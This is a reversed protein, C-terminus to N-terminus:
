RPLLARTAPAPETGLEALASKCNRYAKIAADEDGITTALKILTRWASERFPNTEVVERCLTRSLSYQGSSLALNAVEIQAEERVEELEDRRANVWASCLGPMFDGKATVALAQQTATLRDAGCMRSAEAIAALLRTSESEIRVGPAVRIVDGDTILTGEPLVSRLQHVLQRLQLRAAASDRDPLLAAIVEERRTFPHRRSAIFGLLEVSRRLRPHVREGHVIIAAEGFEEVVISGDGAPVRVGQMMLARGIQQWPTDLTAEASQRRSAVAPFDALAKLLLHNSGQRTASALALDAARDAADEDGTRWEAEALYVAAAPEQLHGDSSEMIAVTRKLRRRAAEDEEAILEALGRWVDVFAAFMWGDHFTEEELRGLIRKATEADGELRLALKAETPTLAYNLAVAGIEDFRRRAMGLARWAGEADGADIYIDPAIYTLMSLPMDDGAIVAEYARLADATRGTATLVSIEWTRVVSETWRSRAVPETGTLRGAFYEALLVFLDFPGGALEPRAPRRNNSEILLYGVADVESGSALAFIKDSDVRRGRMFYSWAMLAAAKSSRQVLAEREGRAELEDAVREVGRYDEEAWCLMLEAIAFNTPRPRDNGLLQLWRRAQPLDLREIVGLIATEASGAAGVTDGARLFEEVADEAHGEAILLRAFSRRLESQRGAPREGLRSGLFERFRAHCRMVDAERSWALPLHSARLVALHHAADDLGIATARDRDVEHLVSSEVLFTQTEPPLQSLIHAGLYGFLPDAEGGSGAVHDDARWSEFLVGTVWGGTSDVAHKADLEPRGSRELAATAEDVTFCLQADDFSSLGPPGPLGCDPPPSRRSILVTKVNKPAHRLFSSIVMWADTSDALRELDDLVLILEAGRDLFTDALLGAVEAHTLGEGLAETGQRGISPERRRLAAELYAILRGPTADSSDVTLWAPEAGRARVAELVATTKGAGAAAAVVLVASSRLKEGLAQQVRPRAVVGSALEPARIKHEIIAGEGRDAVSGM